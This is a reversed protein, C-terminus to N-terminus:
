IFGLRRSKVDQLSAAIWLGPFIDDFEGRAVDGIEFQVVERVIESEVSEGEIGFHHLSECALLPPFVAKKKTIM